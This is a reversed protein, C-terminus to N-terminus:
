TVRKKRAKANTTNVKSQKEKKWFSVSREFIELVIGDGWGERIRKEYAARIEKETPEIWSSIPRASEVTIGAENPKPYVHSLKSSEIYGKAYIPFFIETRGEAASQGKKRPRDPVGILILGREFTIPKRETLIRKKVESPEQQDADEEWFAAAYGGWFEKSVAIRWQCRAIFQIIDDLEDDSIESLKEPNKRRTIAFTALQPATLPFASDKFEKYSKWIAAKRSPEASDSGPFKDARLRQRKINWKVNDSPKTKETDSPKKKPATM